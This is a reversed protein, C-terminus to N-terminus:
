DENLHSYSFNSTLLNCVSPKMMVSRLWHKVQCVKSPLKPLIFSLLLLQVQDQDTINSQRIHSELSHSLYHMFIHLMNFMFNNKKFLRKQRIQTYPLSYFTLILESLGKIFCLMSYDKDDYCWHVTYMKVIKLKLGSRSLQISPLWTFQVAWSCFGGLSLDLDTRWQLRNWITSSVFASESCWFFDTLRPYLVLADSYTTTTTTDAVPHRRQPVGSTPVARVVTVM